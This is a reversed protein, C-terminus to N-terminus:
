NSSCPVTLTTPEIGATASICTLKSLLGALHCVTGESQFTYEDGVTQPFVSLVLNDELIKGTSFEMRKKEDQFVGWDKVTVLMGM